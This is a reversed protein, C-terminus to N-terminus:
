SSTADHHFKLRASERQRESQRQARDSATAACAHRASREDIVIRGGSVM